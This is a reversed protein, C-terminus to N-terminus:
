ERRSGRCHVARLEETAGGGDRHRDRRGSHRVRADGGRRGAGGARRGRGGGSRDVAAPEDGAAGSGVEV